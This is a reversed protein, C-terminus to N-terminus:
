RRCCKAACSNFVEGRLLNFRPAHPFQRRLYTTKGTQRPGFLFVSRAALDRRLDLRRALTVRPLTGSSTTKQM